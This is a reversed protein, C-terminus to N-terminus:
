LLFRGGSRLVLAPGQRSEHGLAPPRAQKVLLPLLDAGAGDQGQMAESERLFKVTARQDKHFQRESVETM